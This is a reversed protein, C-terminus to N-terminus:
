KINKTGRWLYAKMQIYFKALSKNIPVEVFAIGRDSSVIRCNQPIIIFNKAKWTSTWTFSKVYKEVLCKGDIL